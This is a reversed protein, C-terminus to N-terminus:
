TKNELKPIYSDNTSEIEQLRIILVYTKSNLNYKSVMTKIDNILKVESINKNLVYALM